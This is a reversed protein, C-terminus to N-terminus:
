PGAEFWRLDDGEGGDDRGDEGTSYLRFADGAERRYRLTGGGLCDRPPAPLFAPILQELREPLSGRGLQWRRLALATVTLQRRTEQRMLVLSAKEWNPIVAQSVPYRFKDLANRPRNARANAERLSGRLTRWSRNTAAERFAVVLPQMAQLYLLEDQKSWAKRWVPKVVSDNVAEALWNTSDIGIDIGVDDSDNRNTRAHHFAAIGFAREAEATRALAAPWDHEQWRRQLDALRPEDWGPVQLAEWTANLGLGFIAVGIMREVLTAPDDFICGLAILAHLNTRAADLQGRHLEDIIAGYLTQAGKRVAVLNHTPSHFPAAPDWAM